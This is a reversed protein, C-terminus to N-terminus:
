KNVDADFSILLVIIWIEVSRNEMSSCYTIMLSNLALEAKLRDQTSFQSCAQSAPTLSSCTWRRWIGPWICLQVNFVSWAWPVGIFVFSRNAYVIEFYQSAWRGYSVSKESEGPMRQCKSIGWCCLFSWCYGRLQIILGRPPLLLRNNIDSVATLHRRSSSSGAM